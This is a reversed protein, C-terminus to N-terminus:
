AAAFDIFLAMIAAQLLGCALTLSMLLSSCSPGFFFSFNILLYLGQPAIKLRILEKTIIILMAEPLISGVGKFKYYYNHNNSKPNGM